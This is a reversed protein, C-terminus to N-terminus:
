KEKAEANSQKKSEKFYEKFGSNVSVIWDYLKQTLNDETILKGKVNISQGKKKFAIM